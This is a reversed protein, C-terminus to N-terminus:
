NPSNPLPLSRMKARMRETDQKKGEAEYINRAAFYHDSAAGPDYRPGPNAYVDGLREHAAAVTNDIELLTKYTKEASALDRMHLLQTEGLYKLAGTHEPEISLEELFEAAAERFRGKRYHLQGLLFHAEPYVPNIILLRELSNQALDFRELNMQINALHYFYHPTIFTPAAQLLRDNAKDIYGPGLLGASHLYTLGWEFRIEGDEPELDVARKLLSDSAAFNASAESYEGAALMKEGGLRNNIGHYLLYESAIPCPRWISLYRRLDWVGM